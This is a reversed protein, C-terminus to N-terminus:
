ALYSGCGCVHAHARYREEDADTWGRLLLRERDFQQKTKGSAQLATLYDNYGEGPRFVNRRHGKGLARMASLCKEAVTANVVPKPLAPTEDYRRLKIERAKSMVQSLNPPFADGSARFHQLVAAAKDYSLERLSGMWVQTPEPGNQEYWPRGFIEGMTHWFRKYALDTWQSQTSEVAGM